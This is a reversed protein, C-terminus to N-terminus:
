QAIGVAYRIHSFINLMLFPFSMILFLASLTNIDESPIIICLTATGACIFLLFLNAIVWYAFHDLNVAALDRGIYRDSTFNQIVLVFSWWSLAIISFVVLSTNLLVSSEIM